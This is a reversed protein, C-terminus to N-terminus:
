PARTVTVHINFTQGDGATEAMTVTESADAPNSLSFRCRMLSPSTSTLPEWTPATGSYIFRGTTMEAVAYEIELTQGSVMTVHYNRAGAGDLAGGTDVQVVGDVKITATATTIVRDVITITYPLTGGTVTYKSACGADRCLELDLTGSYAGLPLGDKVRFSASFWGNGNDRVTVAGPAIAGGTDTVRVSVLDDPVPSLHASVYVTRGSDAQLLTRTLPSPYIAVSVTSVTSGGGGGCALAALCVGCVLRRM